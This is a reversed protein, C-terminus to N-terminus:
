QSLPMQSHNNMQVAAGNIRALQFLLCGDEIELVFKADAVFSGM